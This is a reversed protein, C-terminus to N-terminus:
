STSPSAPRRCIAALVASAVLAGHVLTVVAPGEAPRRSSLALEPLRHDPAPLDRARRGAAGSSEYIQALTFLLADKPAATSSSEIARKLRDIAETAKGHPPSSSRRMSRPRRPPKPDAAGRRTRSPSSPKPRSEREARGRPHGPGRPGFADLWALGGQAPVPGSRGPAGDARRIPRRPARSSRSSRRTALIALAQSLNRGAARDAWTRYAFFGAVLVALGAAIAVAEAVGKKHESVYGVTKGVTEALENRKMDRRTIRQTMAPRSESFRPMIDSGAPGTLRPAISSRAHILDLDGALGRAGAVTAGEDDITGEQGAIGRVEGARALGTM